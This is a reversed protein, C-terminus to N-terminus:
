FKTLSEESKDAEYATKAKAVEAAYDAGPPCFASMIKTKVAEPEDEMFIATNPVSKTMSRQGKKLGPLM